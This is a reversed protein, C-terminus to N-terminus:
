IPTLCTERAHKRQPTRMNTLCCWSSSACFVHDFFVQPFYNWDTTKSILAWRMLWWMSDLLVGSGGLEFNYVMLLVKVCLHANIECSSEVWFIFVVAVNFYPTRPQLIITTVHHAIIEFVVTAKQQDDRSHVAVREPNIYIYLYVYKYMHILTFLSIRM